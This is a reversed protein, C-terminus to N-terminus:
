SSAGPPSCSSDSLIVRDAAHQQVLRNGAVPCIHNTEVEGSRVHEGPEGSLWRALLPRSVLCKQTFAGQLLRDRQSRSAGVGPGHSGVGPTCRVSGCVEEPPTFGQARTLKNSTYLPPIHCGACGERDSITQGAKAEEDFANPNPPPKLSYIHLALANLAEDSVRAEIRRTDSSIVRHPGFQISGASTVLAAYQM